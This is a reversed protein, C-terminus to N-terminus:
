SYQDATLSSSFDVDAGIVVTHTATRECPALTHESAGRCNRLLNGVSAREREDMSLSWRAKGAVCDAAYRCHYGAVPPLWGKPEQDSKSRNM